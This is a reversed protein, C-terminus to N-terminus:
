CVYSKSWYGEPCESSWLRVKVKLVCGCKICIGYKNNKCQNCFQKRTKRLTDAAFIGKRNYDGKKGYAKNYENKNKLNEQECSQCSM